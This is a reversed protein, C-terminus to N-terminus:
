LRTRRSDIDDSLDNWPLATHDTHPTAHAPPSRYMRLGAAAVDAAQLEVYRPASGMGGLSWRGLHRIETDSLGVRCAWTAAGRRFSHGSYTRGDATGTYGCLTLLQRLEAIVAKKPFGYSHRLASFSFLPAEPHDPYDTLLRCLLSTPCVAQFRKDEVRPIPLFKGLRTPDMKSTKLRLWLGNGDRVIDRRQLDLEPDFVDYTFEGSRLYCAFALSFATALVVQRRSPWGMLLRGNLALLVPLTIPLATKTTTEGKVRRVGRKFMM